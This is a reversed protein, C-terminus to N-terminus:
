DLHSLKVRDYHSLKLNVIVNPIVTLINSFNRVM